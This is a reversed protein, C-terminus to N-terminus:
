PQKSREPLPMPRFVFARSMAYTAVFSVLAAVALPAMRQDPEPFIRRELLTVMGIRVILAILVVALYGAGRLPSMRAGQFRFTWLEHLLYNFAAALSFGAAAAIPLPLGVRAAAFWAMAFDVALGM